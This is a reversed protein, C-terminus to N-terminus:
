RGALIEGMVPRLQAFDPVPDFDPLHARGCLTSAKQASTADTSTAAAQAGIGGSGAAPGEGLSAGSAATGAYTPGPGQATPTVM